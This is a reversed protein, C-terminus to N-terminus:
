REFLSNDGCIEAGKIADNEVSISGSKIKELDGVGRM